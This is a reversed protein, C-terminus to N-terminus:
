LFPRNWIETGYKSLCTNKYKQQYEDTATYYCGYKELMSERTKEAFRLYFERGGCFNEIIAAKEAQTKAPINWLKRIKGLDHLSILEPYQKFIDENLHTRYYAEFVDRDYTQIFKQFKNM